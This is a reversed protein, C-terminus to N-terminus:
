RRLRDRLYRYLAGNGRRAKRLVMRLPPLRKLLPWWLGCAGAGFLVLQYFPAPLAPLALWSWLWALVLVFSVSIGTRWAARIILVAWRYWFGALGLLVLLGSGVLDFPAPLLLWALVASSSTEFLVNLYLWAQDHRVRVTDTHSQGLIEKRIALVEAVYRRATAYDGESQSMRGLKHLTFTTERHRRGLVAENIALAEEYYRRATAYDGEASAVNGLAHLTVATERHRRGLVEEKIALAEEYYRRATAYDEEDYAVDGLAHLTVATERHRRGLVAEEIALAEAYYRRATAYDEESQSMRGLEHLTVATSRHRRGLVEEKIALAEAYYRRATAYDGEASAVNGLAHLTVATSRHRRGLVEEKIALAEAYYRRATAYDGEAQAVDGLAHLTVATERHRRGLVAENIALAEEYYRRATAYDGEASAVDGLAHLTVATERHRRGLVAENIALAEEYYRRATAYDGEASAVNGLAHLTFAASRHRRGLVEEKIALAETLYRRATAYDGESYAVNGLEYLTFATERHRRGLMEERIALAEEYYRRATAYDGESYAVNGLEHLTFATERHHRGLMEERIALAEEYYRRATAYDEEAYAVLGGAHFLAGTLADRDGTAQVLVHQIHKRFPAATLEGSDDLWQITQAIAQEARRRDAALDPSVSHAYAILLRHLRYGEDAREIMGCELLRGLIREGTARQDDHAPDLDGMRILVEALIPEPALLAAALWVARALQDTPDNGLRHYSLAFTAVISTRYQPPLGERLTQNLSHHNIQEARLRDVFERLTVSAGALYKGALSLALPHGDLATVIAQAAAAEAPDALLPALDCRRIAALPTLLLELSPRDALSALPLAQVGDGVSWSQRRSTILIRAGGGHPRWRELLAPDGLNDFVLLRRGPSEWIAMVQEARQRLSLRARRQRPELTEDLSSPSQELSDPESDAFLQLGRQGGCAAVQAEITDEREMSLWFVGDPFHQRYRHVFEIALSTKGIGGIGTIAPMVAVCATEEGILLAALRELQDDRGVFVPLSAHPMVFPQHDPLRLLVRDPYFALAVGESRDFGYEGPQYDALTKQLFSHLSQWTVRGDELAASGALGRLLAASYYTAGDHEYAALYPSVAALTKRMVGTAGQDPDTHQINLAKALRQRLNTILPDPAADGIAGAYCCDLVVLLRSPTHYRLVKEQLWELSLHASPDERADDPRFNYTVLFVDSHGSQDTVYRGHGIFYLLLLGDSAVMRRANFIAQRVADTTAAAGLLPENGYLTFGSAPATLATAVSRATDEAYRLPALGTEPGGNVGIVM